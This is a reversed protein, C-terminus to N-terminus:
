TRIMPLPFECDPLSKVLILSTIMLPQTPKTGVLLLEDVLEDVLEELLEDVLEEPPVVDLLLELEEEPPETGSPPVVTKTPSPYLSVPTVNVVKSVDVGPVLVISKPKSGLRCGHSFKSKLMQPRSEGAIRSKSPLVVTM